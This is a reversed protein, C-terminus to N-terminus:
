KNRNCFEVYSWDIPCQYENHDFMAEKYNVDAKRRLHELPGKSKSNGVRYTYKRNRRSVKRM